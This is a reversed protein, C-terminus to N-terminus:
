HINEMKNKCSLIATTLCLNHKYATYSQQPLPQSSLQTSINWIIRQLSFRGWTCFLIRDTDAFYTNMAITSLHTFIMTTIRSVIYHSVDRQIAIETFFLNGINDQRLITSAHWRTFCQSLNFAGDNRLGLCWTYKYEHFLHIHVKTWIYKPIKDPYIIVSPSSMIGDQKDSLDALNYQYVEYLDKIHFRAQSVAHYVSFM